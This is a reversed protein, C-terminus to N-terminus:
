PPRGGARRPTRTDHHARPPRGSCMRATCTRGCMRCGTGARAADGRGLAAVGRLAHCGPQVTQGAESAAWEAARRRCVCSAFGFALSYVRARFTRRYGICVAAAPGELEHASWSRSVSGPPAVAAGSAAAGIAAGSAAPSGSIVMGTGPWPSKLCASAYSPAARACRPAAPTFNQRLSDCFTTATTM